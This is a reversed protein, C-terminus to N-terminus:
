KFGQYRGGYVNFYNSFKLIQLRSFPNQYYSQSQVILFVQAFIAFEGTQRRALVKMELNECNLMEPNECKKISRKYLLILLRSNGNKM